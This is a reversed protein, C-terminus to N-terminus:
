VPIKRALEPDPHLGSWLAEDDIAKLGSIDEPDLKLDFCKLNERMRLPDASKPISLVGQSLNFALCLRAASIGYKAAMATVTPNQLTLMRGLPAWAEVLIGRKKCYDYAEPQLYGIHFELQDVAPLEEDGLVKLHHPLFNSVGISRAKGEKKLARVTEWTKILHAQWDRDDADARPWHILLLDVYDSNLLRLSNETSARAGAANLGTKGIKTTVFFDSRPLGSAAIAEGVSSESGYVAATDFHRYGAKIAESIIAAGNEEDRVRWTGFGLCPIQNGDLLTFTDNPSTFSQAATIFDM